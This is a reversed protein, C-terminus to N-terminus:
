RGDGLPRSLGLAREDCPALVFDDLLGWGVRAFCLGSREDQWYTVVPGRVTAFIVWGLLLGWGIASAITAILATLLKGDTVGRTM